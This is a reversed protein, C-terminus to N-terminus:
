LGIDTIQWPLDFTCVDSNGDNGVEQIEISYADKLYVDSIGFSVINEGGFKASKQQEFVVSGNSDVFRADVTMDNPVCFYIRSANDRVLCSDITLTECM